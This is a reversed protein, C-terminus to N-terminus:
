DDAGSESNARVAGPTTFLVVGFGVAFVAYVFASMALPTAEYVIAAKTLMIAVMGFHLFNGIAIPRAYIGGILVGRAMWNLFAFGLYIAGMMQVMLLTANDPVTGHLALVEQPMFSTALGILALFAASTIMLIRTSM